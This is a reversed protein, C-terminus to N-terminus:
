QPMQEKKSAKVWRDIQKRLVSLSVAGNELVADHFRSLHFNKGLKTEAMKRLRSIEMQGTKYALAQGPSNIYRDIENDINNAALATHETMFQKAQARSWGFAHIGTDVVLRAARWAEYSYMGMRDLDGSYLGMEDALQETYLAWGEVFVTANIYKRFAPLAPREYSIAIQLHHGPISEHFALAEAEYRPRTKPQYVNIFYEGPKIGPTPPRYYAITTYPAEYKPVRRVICKEQPLIGFYKPITQSARALAQKAKTEIEEETTFYLSPHTRLHKLIQQRNKIGFLKRGLQRMANDIRDIEKLGTEHIIKASLPLSTYRRILHQYCQKGGPLSGIGVETDPRARPLIQTALFQQYRLLAPRIQTRVIDALQARSKDFSEPADQPTAVLTPKMLPWQQLPENLQDTVMKIVRRTSEATALLGREAGLKLNAVENDISLSIGKYRKILRKFDIAQTISHLEPLYNWTTVPNGRAAVLWTFFQCDFTAVDSHLSEILLSLTTTDTTNLSSSQIGLAQDLFHKTADRRQIHGAMRNDTLQDDLMRFGVQTAFLPYNELKHRWHETLLLKLEVNETTGAATQVFSPGWQISTSTRVPLTGSPNTPTQPSSTPLLNPKKNHDVLPSQAALPCGLLGVM